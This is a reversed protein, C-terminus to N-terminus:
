GLLPLPFQPPPPMPLLPRPPPTGSPIFFYSVRAPAGSSFLIIFNLRNHVYDLTEKVETCPTYCWQGVIGMGNFFPPCDVIIIILFYISLCTGDTNM